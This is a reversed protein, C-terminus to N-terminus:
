EETGDIIVLILHHFMLVLERHFETVRRDSRNFEQDQTSRMTQIHRFTQDVANQIFRDQTDLRSRTELHSTRAERGLTDLARRTENRAEHLESRLATLNSNIDDQVDRLEIYKNNIDIQADRFEQGLTEISNTRRTDPLPEDASHPVAPVEEVEIDEEPPSNFPYSTQGAKTSTWTIRQPTNWSTMHDPSYGSGATYFYLVFIKITYFIIYITKGYLFVSDLSTAPSSPPTPCLTKRDPSTEPSIAPTFRVPKREPCAPSTSRDMKRTKKRLPEGSPGATQDLASGTPVIQDM